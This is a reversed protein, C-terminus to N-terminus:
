RGGSARVPRTRPDILDDDSWRFSSDMEPAALAPPCSISEPTRQSSPTLTHRDNREFGTGEVADGV